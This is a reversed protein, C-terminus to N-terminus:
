FGRKAPSKLESIIIFKAYVLALNYTQQKPHRLTKLKLKTL